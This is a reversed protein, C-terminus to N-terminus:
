KFERISSPSDKEKKIAMLPRFKGLLYESCTELLVLISCSRCEFKAPSSVYQLFFEINSHSTTYTIFRLRNLRMDWGNIDGPWILRVLLEKACFVRFTQISEIWCVAVHATLRLGHESPFEDIAFPINSFNFFYPLYFLIPWLADNFAWM